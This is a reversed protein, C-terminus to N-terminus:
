RGDGPNRSSTTTSETAPRQGGSDLPDTDRSDVIDGGIDDDLTISEFSDWKRRGTGAGRNTAAAGTSTATHGTERGRDNRMRDAADRDSRPAIDGLGDVVERMALTLHRAAAVFHEALEPRAARVHALGRCIPCIDCDSGHAATDDEPGHGPDDRLPLDRERHGRDQSRDGRTGDADHGGVVEDTPPTSSMPDDASDVPETHPDPTTMAVGNRAALHLAVPDGPALHDADSQWWPAADTESTVDTRPGPLDDTM